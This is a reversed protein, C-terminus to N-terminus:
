SAERTVPRPAVVRIYGATDVTDAAIGRLQQSVPALAPVAALLLLGLVSALALDYAAHRPPSRGDPKDLMAAFARLLYNAELVAGALISTMALMQLPGLDIALAQLVLLKAWFGPLPPVGILSLALLLFLGSALPSLRAAGGLSRIAGGWREALLFLAPKVLLHHLGVALGAVVGAEGSVSFAVFVIGLQGISSFALMRTLDPARWAALEASLIGLMGLVLLTHAEPQPFILVLLRLIVLLALKSVVGALLASVRRPAVAYVEPVWGNLPFLEAKVGFGALLLVFAALGQAGDLTGPALEALHALNLTGTAQYILAIGALALAAAFGSLVLYRLAAAWSAPTGRVVSLGYSVVAALEYFVYINFLDGSLALGAGAGALVLTLTRYRLDAQAGGPWLLLCGASVSLALFLALRDVYLPIGLPAAFDGMNVAVAAAGLQLWMQVGLLTVILMLLPGFWRGAAASVREVVPLLFAGLLPLAVLLVANQPMM